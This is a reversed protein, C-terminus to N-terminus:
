LGCLRALRAHFAQIRCEQYLGLNITETDPSGTRCGIQVNPVNSMDQDFV